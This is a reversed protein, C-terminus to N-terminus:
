FIPNAALSLKADAKIAPAKEPLSDAVLKNLERLRTKIGKKESLLNHESQAVAYASDVVDPNHMAANEGESTLNQKSNEMSDLYRPPASQIHKAAAIMNDVTKIRQEEKDKPVYITQNMVVDYKRFLRTLWAQFYPGSVSLGQPLCNFM